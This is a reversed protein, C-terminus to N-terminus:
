ILMGTSRSSPAAMGRAPLLGEAAAAPPSVSTSTSLADSAAAFRGQHQRARGHPAICPFAELAQPLVTHRHNPTFARASVRGM